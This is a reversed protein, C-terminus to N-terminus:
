MNSDTDLKKYSATLRSAEEYIGKMLSLSKSAAELGLESMDYDQLMTLLIDHRAHAYSDTNKKGQDTVQYAVAKKPGTKLSVKEVYGMDVLKKVGYQINPTDDRNLLRGIEYISKPRNKMRIIHLLAIEHATLDDGNSCSQCDEQWRIWSYYVRWFLFELDILKRDEDTEALHWTLTSPPKSM